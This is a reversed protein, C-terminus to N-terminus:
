LFIMRDLCESKVSRAFCEAYANLNPSRPPLRVPEIGSSRLIADFAATFLPDRDQILFRRCRLFGDVPDTLRRALREAWAGNPTASSGAIQVRRTSLDIVFLM